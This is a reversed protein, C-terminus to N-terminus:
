NVRQTEFQATLGDGQKEQREAEPRQGCTKLNDCMKFGDEM